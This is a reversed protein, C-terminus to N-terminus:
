CGRFVPIRLMGRSTTTIGPTITATGRRYHGLSRVVAVHKAQRALLPLHECLEVGPAATAIPEFPGRYEKPAKPKMDWTDIHSAGGSLWILITTKAKGGTASGTPTAGGALGDISLGGFGLAGAMLVTRRKLHGAVIDHTSTRDTM